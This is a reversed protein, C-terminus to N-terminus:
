LDEENEMEAARIYVDVLMFDRRRKFAFTQHRGRPANPLRFDKDIKQVTPLSLMCPLGADSVNSKFKGVVMNVVEGLVATRVEEDCDEEGMGMMKECMLHVMKTEMRLFVQGEAKGDFSAVGYYADRRDIHAKEPSCEEIDMSMMMEFTDKAAHALPDALALILASQAGTSFLADSVLTSRDVKEGPYALQFLRAKLAADSEIVKVMEEMDLYQASLLESVRKVSEPLPELDYKEILRDEGVHEAEEAAALIADVFPGSEPWVEDLPKWESMGGKWALDGRRLERSRCLEVTEEASLPGRREGAVAVYLNNPPTAEPEIAANAAQLDAESSVAADEGEETASGAEQETAEAEVPTEAEAAVTPSEAEVAPEPEAAEPETEPATTGNAEVLDPWTESLPRWEPMGSRWSLDQARLSGSAYLDRVEEPELPGKREGSVVVYMKM